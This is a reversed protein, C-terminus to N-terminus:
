QKGLWAIITPCYLRIQLETMVSSHKVMDQLLKKKIPTLNTGISRINHLEQESIYESKIREIQVREKIYKLIEERCEKPKEIWVQLLEHANLTASPINDSLLNRYFGEVCQEIDWGLSLYAVERGHHQSFISHMMQFNKIRAMFGEVTRLLLTFTNNYAQEFPLITGADSVIVVHCSYSSNKQMLKHIGQNDYIGGDILKPNVTDYLDPNSYYQRDISVPTFAFPVCTSAMVARSVPFDAHKYYIPPNYYAYATDEMKRASFTFHRVTQLNTSNIAIEPITCLDSLVAGKFFYADYAKEIIKSLPLLRFQYKIITFILICLPVLTYIAFSTFPLIFTALILMLLPIATILFRWSTLVFRVVSKTSLTEVMEKEFEEFSGQHLCYAAGVISGGSITSLVDVKDLLGHEHLKKMTGIHFGAARYGGGSLAVGLRKNEIM